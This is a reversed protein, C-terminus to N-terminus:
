IFPDASEALLDLAAESFPKLKELVEPSVDIEIARDPHLYKVLTFYVISFTHFQVTAISPDNIWNKGMERFLKAVAIGAGYCDFGRCVDYGRAELEPFVTCCRKETDLHKCPVRPPKPYHPYPLRVAACCVADCNACDTKLKSRDFIRPPM